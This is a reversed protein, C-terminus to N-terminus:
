KLSDTQRVGRNYPSEELEIRVLKQQLRELQANSLLIYGLQEAYNTILYFTKM